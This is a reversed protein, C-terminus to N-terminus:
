KMRLQFYRAANTVDLMVSQASDAAISPTNVLAWPVRALDTTALLNFNTVSSPWSVLVQASSLQISLSPQPSHLVSLQVSASATLGHSNMAVATITHRGESLDSALFQLEAGTGLIGDM